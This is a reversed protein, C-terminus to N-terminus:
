QNYVIKGTLNTHYGGLAKVRKKFEEGNVTQLLSSINSDNFYKQPIIIDYQETVIPIFDLELAKAAAYIGLGADAASSAVAAAVTM